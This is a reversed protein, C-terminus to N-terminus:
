SPRPPAVQPKPISSATQVPTAHVPTVQVPTAYVPTAHVPTAHVPTVQVPTSHMPHIPRHAPINDHKPMSPAPFTQVTTAPMHPVFSSAPPVGPQPPLPAWVRIKKKKPKRPTMEDLDSLINPKPLSTIPPQGDMPVLEPQPEEESSSEANPNWEEDEEVDE